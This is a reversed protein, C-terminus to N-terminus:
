RRDVYRLRRVNRALVRPSQAARDREEKDKLDAIRISRGTLLAILIAVILWAIAATLLWWM